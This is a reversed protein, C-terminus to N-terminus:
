GTPPDSAGRLPLRIIFTTGEGLVSELEIEGHHQDVVIAWAISLGQGTGRGQKKTTFFPDFVRARDDPAIGCGTDAIHIEVHEGARRASISIKGMDPGGANARDDIAHAANVVMNLVVQNILDRECPVLPLDDDFQMVLEAVYKWENRAVSVTTRIAAALDIPEKLGKSPHSFDKMAGVINGIRGLGELSQEFAQPVETRLYDIQCDRAVRDFEDLLPAPIEGARARDVIQGACRILRLLPVFAQQLFVLNDNVFQTPTNIEHAIGAALQGISELKSTQLLRAQTRNLEALAEKLRVRENQLEDTKAEVVRELDVNVRLVDFANSGAQRAEAIRALVDVTLDRAALERRLDDMDLKDYRDAL